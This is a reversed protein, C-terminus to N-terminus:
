FPPLTGTPDLTEDSIHLNSSLIGTYVNRKPTLGIENLKKVGGTSLGSAIVDLKKWKLEAGEDEDFDEFIKWSLRSTKRNRCGNM